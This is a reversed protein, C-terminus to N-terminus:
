KHHDRDDTRTLLDNSCETHVGESIIVVHVDAEPAMLEVEVLHACWHVECRQSRCGEGM